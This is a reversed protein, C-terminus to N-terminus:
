AGSLGAGLSGFCPMWLRAARWCARFHPSSPPFLSNLSPHAVAKEDERGDVEEGVREGEGVKAKGYLLAVESKDGVVAGGYDFSPIDEALWARVCQEVASEPLLDRLLPHAMGRKCYPSTPYTPHPCSLALLHLSHHLGITCFSFLFFLIVDGQGPHPTAIATNESDRAGMEPVKGKREEKM